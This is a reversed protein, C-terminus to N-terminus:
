LYRTAAQQLILRSHMQFLTYQADSSVIGSINLPADGTNSVTVNLNASGSVNVSGFDLSAPAPVLYRHQNM